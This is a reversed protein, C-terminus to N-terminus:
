GFVFKKVKESLYKIDEVRVNKKFFIAVNKGMMSQEFQCKAILKRWLM